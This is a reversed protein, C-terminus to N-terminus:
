AKAKAAEFPPLPGKLTEDLERCLRSAWLDSPVPSADIFRRCERLIDRQRDVIAQLRENEAAAQELGAKLAEIRMHQHEILESQTAM